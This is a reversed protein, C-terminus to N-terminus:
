RTALSKLMALLTIKDPLFGQLQMQQFLNIAEEYHAYHVYAGIITNWSILDKRIEAFVRVAEELSGCRAYMNMVANMLSALGGLGLERAHSHVMRGVALFCSRDLADVITLLTVRDPKIGELQMLGFYQMTTASHGQKTSAAMRRTWLVVSDHHPAYNFLVDLNQGKSYLSFIAAEVRVDAHFGKEIAQEHLVRGQELDGLGSCANLAKVFSSRDPVVDMEQFLRLVESYDFRRMYVDMMANWTRVDKALVGEFVQRAHGFDPLMSVLATGVITESDRGTEVAISHLLRSARGRDELNGCVSIVTALTPSDPPVGELLMTHFVSFASHFHFERALAGIMSTWPVPGRNPMKYFSRQAEDPRGCALYMVVLRNGLFVNSDLALNSIRAHVLLGQHLDKSAACADLLQAYDDPSIEARREVSSGHHFETSHAANSFDQGPSRNRLSLIGSFRSKSRLM